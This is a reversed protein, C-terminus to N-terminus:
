SEEKLERRIRAQGRAVEFRGLILDIEAAVVWAAADSAELANGMGEAFRRSAAEHSAQAAQLARELPPLVHKATELEVYATRLRAWQAIRAAAVEAEQVRERAESARRRVAVTPDYIPASFVIGVDWNPVAPLWGGGLPITGNSAPVGGARSTFTAGLSIDPLAERRIAHTRARQLRLQSRAARVSPHADVTQKATELTIVTESGPLEGVADIAPEEAGMATALVGQAVLVSAHARVVAIEFRALDAEARAVDAIPRMGENFSAQATELHARTRRWANQAATDIAKAVLVSLFAEEVALILSLSEDQGQRRELDLLADAVATQAAIRGFDYIPQRLAVGVLTSPRPSFAPSLLQQTGGVRPLPVTDTSRVVASSNNATAATLQATAGVTPRWGARPIKVLEEAAALRSRTVIRDPQHRQAFALADELTVARTAKPVSFEPIPPSPSSPSAWTAGSPFAAWVLGVVLLTASGSERLGRSFTLLGPKEQDWPWFQHARSPFRMVVDVTVRRQDLVPKAKAWDSSHGTQVSGFSLPARDRFVRILAIAGFYGM